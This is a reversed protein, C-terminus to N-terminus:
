IEEGKAFDNRILCIKYLIWVGAVREGDQEFETTTIKDVDEGEPVSLTNQFQYQNFNLSQDFEIFVAESVGEFLPECASFLPLALLIAPVLFSKRM